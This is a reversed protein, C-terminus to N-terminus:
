SFSLAGAAITQDAAVRMGHDLMNGDGVAAGPGVVCLGRVECGAGIEAREAVISGAV